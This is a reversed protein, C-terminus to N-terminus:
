GSDGLNKKATVWSSSMFSRGQQESVFEVKDSGGATVLLHTPSHQTPGRVEDARRLNLLAVLQPRFLSLLIRPPTTLPSLPQYQPWINFLLIMLFMWLEGPVTSEELGVEREVTAARNEEAAVGHDDHRCSM